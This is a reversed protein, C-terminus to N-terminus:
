EEKLDIDEYKVIKKNDYEKESIDDGMDILLNILELTSEDKVLARHDVGDVFYVPNDFLEGNYFVASECSVTGDGFYTSETDSFLYDTEVIKKVTENNFGAIMYVDIRDDAIIHGKESILSSQSKLANQYLTKNTGNSDKDKEFRAHDKIFEVSEEFNFIKGNNVIYGGSANVAYETPLLEYIASINLALERVNKKMVAFNFYRGDQLVMLAKASGGFPTGITIVKETSGVNDESLTLYQAAAIGGMSHCIFSVDTYGENDVLEDLLKANDISPMRWDYSYFLVDHTKSYKKYLTNYLENYSGLTGIRDDDENVALKKAAELSDIQSKLKVIEESKASLEKEKEALAEIVASKKNDEESKLKTQLASIEADKKSIERALEEASEAKALKVANEKENAYHIEREAIEKTFEKDRVQKVISDYSSEDVQFVEGCNPCKIEQM